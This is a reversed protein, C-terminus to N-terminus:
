SNEPPCVGPGRSSSGGKFVIFLAALQRVSARCMDTEYVFFGYGHTSVSMQGPQSVRVTVWLEIVLMCMIRVSFSVRVRVSTGLGILRKLFGLSEGTEIQVVM